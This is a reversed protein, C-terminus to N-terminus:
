FGIMRKLNKHMNPTKNGVSLNKDYQIRKFPDPPSDKQVKLLERMTISKQIKDTKKKEGQHMTKGQPM